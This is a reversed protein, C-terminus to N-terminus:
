GKETIQIPLTERIEIKAIYDYVPNTGDLEVVIARKNNAMLKQAEEALFDLVVADNDDKNRYLVAHKGNAYIIHPEEALTGHAQIALLFRGDETPYIEYENEVKM